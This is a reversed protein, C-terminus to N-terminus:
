QVLLRHPRFLSRGETLTSSHLRLRGQGRNVGMLGGAPVTFCVFGGYVPQKSIRQVSAQGQIGRPPLSVPFSLYMLFVSLCQSLKWWHSVFIILCTRNLELHKWVVASHHWVLFVVSRHTEQTQILGSQLLVEDTTKSRINPCRNIDARYTFYDSIQNRAHTKAFLQTQIWNLIHHVIQRQQWAKQHKATKDKKKEM